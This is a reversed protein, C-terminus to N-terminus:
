KYSLLLQKRAGDEPVTSLMAGALGTYLYSVPVYFSMFDLLVLVDGVPIIKARRAEM